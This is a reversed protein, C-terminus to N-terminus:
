TDITVLIECQITRIDGGTGVVRQAEKEGKKKQSVIRSNKFICLVCVCVCVCVGWAPLM